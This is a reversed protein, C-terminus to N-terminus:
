NLGALKDEGKFYSYKLLKDKFYHDHIYILLGKPIFKSKLLTDMITITIKQLGDPLKYYFKYCLILFRFARHFFIIDADSLGDVKVIVEDMSLSKLDKNEYILNNKKCYNYLETNPFPYFISVLPIDSNIQANLKITKIIKDKNEGPIGIMNFTCTQIDYKHCLNFANIVVNNKVPRKIFKLIGEDGSELGFQIRFCGAYKLLSIIEEDLLEVRWKCRFPLAIENKWIESFEKLWNIDSPLIDDHFYIHNIDPVLRLVEKAEQIVRGVSHFRVYRNRNPYIKKLSHNSCYTCNFPCGRSARLYTHKFKRNLPDLSKLNFIERDPFPLEDLNEILPAISNKFLNGNKKVWLSRVDTFDENNKYRILFEEFAKEGEGICIVDVAPNNIVEEPNLTVHVGGLVILANTVEKIWGVWQKVYQYQQTITSIAVIDPSETLVKNKFVEEYPKKTVHFLSVDASQRKAISILYGLAISFDGRYFQNNEDIDPFIFLIRM